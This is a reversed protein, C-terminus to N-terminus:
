KTLDFTWSEGQGDSYIIKKFDVARAHKPLDLENNFKFVLPRSMLSYKVRLQDKKAGGATVNADIGNKVLAGEVVSAYITRQQNSVIGILKKARAGLAKAEKQDSEEYAGTIFALSFIDKTAQEVHEPKGYFKKLHEANSKLRAEVEDVTEKFATFVAVPDIGETTEKPKAMEQALSAEKAARTPEPPPSVETTKTASAEQIKTASMSRVLLGLAVMGILAAGAILLLKGAAGSQQGSGGSAAGFICFLHLVIGPVVFAVYGITVCILWVIGNLVQGKYMQGVGPFFLSLVAAVGPSWQAQAHM